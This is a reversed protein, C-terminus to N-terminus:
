VVLVIDDMTVAIGEPVILLQHRAGRILKKSLATYWHALVVSPWCVESKSLMQQLPSMMSM